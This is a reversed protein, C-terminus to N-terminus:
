SYTLDGTGQLEIDLEVLGAVAAKPTMKTVLANGSYAHTGDLNFVVSVETGALMATRLAIQGNTDSVDLRGSAKGSWESITAVFTKSTQGFSTDDETGMGEDVSWDGMKAVTNSGVKFSSRRGAISAM